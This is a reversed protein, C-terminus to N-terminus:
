RRRIGLFKRMNKEYLLDLDGSLSKYEQMFKFMDTFPTAGILLIEGSSAVSTKLRVRLGRPTTADAEVLKNYLTEVSVSDVSFLSGFKAKGLVEVNALYEQEESSIRGSTPIVYDLHDKPGANAIFTKLRQVLENSLSSLRERKGELTAFLKQAELGITDAGSYSHGHKSQILIWNDGELGEADDAKIFVAADIGGNGAGDCLIIESTANEVEQWDRLMQEAFRHGLETTSPSGAVVDELWQSGFDSFEIM